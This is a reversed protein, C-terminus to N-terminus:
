TASPRLSWSCKTPPWAAAASGAAAAGAVPHRHDFDFAAHSDAGAPEHSVRRHHPQGHRPCRHHAAHRVRRPRNRRRHDGSRDDGPRANRRGPDRRSRAASRPSDSRRLEARRRRSRAPQGDVEQTDHYFEIPDEITIIHHDVTENIYNIMSALTTTKGSGTPGTVLFLGRPRMILEKCVVPLGLQDMTLFKNPIQRLVMGINGKQKFISVRFRAAHRLRLRLRQRGGGAAGAPLAGACHKEDPERHRRRDAGQNRAPAHSRAAALRPAARRFHASRQGRPQGGDAVAQRHSDYGRLAERATLGIALRMPRPVGSVGLVTRERYRRNSM